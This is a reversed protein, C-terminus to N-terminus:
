GEINGNAARKSNMSTAGTSFMVKKYVLRLYEKIPNYIDFYPLLSHFKMTPPPQVHECAGGSSAAVCRSTYGQNAHTACVDSTEGM